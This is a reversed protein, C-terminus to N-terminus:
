FFKINHNAAITAITTGSNSRSIERTPARALLERARTKGGRISIRVQLAGLSLSDATLTTLSTRIMIKPANPQTTPVQTDISSILLFNRVIVGGSVVVGRYGMCLLLRLEPGHHDTHPLNKYLFFRGLGHRPYWSPAKHIAQM